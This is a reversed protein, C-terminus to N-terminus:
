CGLCVSFVTVRILLCSVWFLGAWHHIQIVMELLNPQRIANYSSPLRRRRGWWMVGGCLGVENGRWNQELVVWIVGGTEDWFWGFLGM